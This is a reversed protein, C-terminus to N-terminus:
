VVLAPVVCSNVGCLAGREVTDTGDRTGDGLDLFPHVLNRSSAIDVLGCDFRKPFIGLLLSALVVAENTSALDALQSRSTPLM